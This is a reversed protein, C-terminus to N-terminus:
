LDNIIVALVSMVGVSVVVIVVVIIEERVTLCNVLLEGAEVVKARIVVMSARSTTTTLRRRAAFITFENQELVFLFVKICEGTASLLLRALEGLEIILLDARKESLVLYSLVVLKKM